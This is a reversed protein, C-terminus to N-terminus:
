TFQPKIIEVPWPHAVDRPGDAKSSRIAARYMKQRLEEHAKNQESFTAAGYTAKALGAAAAGMQSEPANFHWWEAAYAQMGAQTMVSYLLRRNARAQVDRSAMTASGASQKEFYAIAAKEGGHDFATGFNLMVAHQRVIASKQRELDNQLAVDIPQRALQRDIRDLAASHELPLKVITLDVAGGTNHPSPRTPDASPISVYKQTEDDLQAPSMDPRQLQLQQRYFHFFSSQVQLPRYADFVLLRYGAPLLQQAALLRKAVGARVFVSLLAGTLKQSGTYPSNSHEGYYAASTLISGAASAYPGLPILPEAQAEIVISKWGDVIGADLPITIM